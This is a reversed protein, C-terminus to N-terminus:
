FMYLQIWSIAQWDLPSKGRDVLFMVWDVSQKKGEMAKWQQITLSIGEETRYLNNENSIETITTSDSNRDDTPGLEYQWLGVTPEGNVMEVVVYSLGGLHFMRQRPPTPPVHIASFKIDFIAEHIRMDLDKLTTWQEPTLSLGRRRPGQAISRVFVLLQNNFVGATLFVADHVHFRVEQFDDDWSTYFADGGENAYLHAPLLGNRLPPTQTASDTYLSGENRLNDIDTPVM